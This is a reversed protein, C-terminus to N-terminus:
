FSRSVRAWVRPTRDVDSQADANGLKWAAVAMLHWNGASLTSGVGTASLSRHNEGDVWTDKNLRVEGHDVFTFLQAIETLAYRLEVNAVYGQDGQAEGEPYARVGYAGGLSIKESSDLNGGAWQGQLQGYLSIRDTLRQLRVVSPNIKQFTGRTKATQDDLVKDQQNDLTLNGQSWALSFANSGGGLFNDRATGNLSATVVHSHKNSKYDYLDIDDKLRKDDFQLQATLSFDRTRILPQQVFVSAIKANGSADLHDFNKALQYNMDSYAVGIQTAWPGIPLQYAVRYYRQDEDSGMIRMSAQDGIGLPSALNLTSGLRYEGTFRNGYNDLDVQGSVMPASRADVVLDSAGVATGPKLTSRVEVGPTEQLLLLSRELTGARVAGGNKLAHLPAALTGDSIRSANNLTVEGFHGELVAITVIGNEVDQAPLYARALPYGKHRYFLTIRGAAAQLESFSVTRNRLDALLPLLDASGIAQNGTLKFQAVQMTPGSTTPNTDPKDPLNLDLTQRPPLAPPKTQIERISQGADPAIEAKAAGATLTLLALAIPTLRIRM